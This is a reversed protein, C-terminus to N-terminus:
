LNPINVPSFKLHFQPHIEQSPSKIHKRFIDKTLPNNKIQIKILSSQKGREAQRVLAQKGEQRKLAIRRKLAPARVQATAQILFSLTGDKKSDRICM